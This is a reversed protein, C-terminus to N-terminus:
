EPPTDVGTIMWRNSAKRLSFQWRMREATPRRKGARFGVEVVGACSAAAESRVVSIACRTFEVNQEVSRAFRAQLQKADANPWVSVVGAVDLVSLADRYRDLVVQIARREHRFDSDASTHLPNLNMTAVPQVSSPLAVLPNLFTAPILRAPVPLTGAPSLTVGASARSEHATGRDVNRQLASVLAVLALATAIAVTAWPHAHARLTRVVTFTNRPIRLRVARVRRPAARALVDRTSCRIRAGLALSSYAAARGADKVGVCVVSFTRAATHRLRSAIPPDHRQRAHAAGRLQSSDLPYARTSAHALSTALPEAAILLINHSASHLDNGDESPFLELWDVPDVQVSQQREIILLTTPTNRRPSTPSDSM